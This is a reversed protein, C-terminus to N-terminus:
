RAILFSPVEWLSDVDQPPAVRVYLRTPTQMQVLADLRPFPPGFSSNTTHLLHTSPALSM